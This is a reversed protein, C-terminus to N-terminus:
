LLISVNYSDMDNQTNGAMRSIERVAAEIM